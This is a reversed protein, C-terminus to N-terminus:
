AKSEVWNSTEQSKKKGVSPPAGCGGCEEMIEICRENLRKVFLATRYAKGGEAHRHVKKERM